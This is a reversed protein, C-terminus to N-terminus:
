RKFDKPLEIGERQALEQWGGPFIARYTQPFNSQLSLPGSESGAGVGGQRLLAYRLDNQGDSGTTQTVTLVNTVAGLCGVNAQLWNRAFNQLM